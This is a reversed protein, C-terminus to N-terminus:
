FPLVEHGRIIRTEIRQGHMRACLRVRRGAGASRRDVLRRSVHEVIGIVSCCEEAQLFEAVNVGADHVRGLSSPPVAARATAEPWAACIITNWV